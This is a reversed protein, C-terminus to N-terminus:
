VINNIKFYNNIDKLSQKMLDIGDELSLNQTNNNNNNQKTEEGANRLKKGFGLKKFIWELSKRIATEKEKKKKKENLEKLFEKGNFEISSLNRKVPRSIIVKGPKQFVNVLKNM